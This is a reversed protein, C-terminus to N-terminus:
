GDQNEEMLQKADETEEVTLLNHIDIILVLRGKTNAVKTFYRTDANAAISPFERIDDASLDDIEEVEDVEVALKMDPLNTIILKTQNPSPPLNFKERLSYVPIIDGRLNIIGRINNSANPVRVVTQDKEIANVYQIDIGYLENGIRFVIPKFTDAM